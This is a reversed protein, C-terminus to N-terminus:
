ARPGSELIARAADLRARIREVDAPAPLAPASEDSLRDLEELWADLADRYARIAGAIPRANTAIIGGGMKADGRALRTMDRWGGAALGRAAPWREGHAAVSEVLAAAAILPLHSISAVALDHDIASMLVPRAGAARALAEVRDVHEAATGDPAVVVWPREMVLDATAAEFGTSERGAMPHGGVFPLGLDEARGVVLGKTSAVDTITAGAALADRLPGALEDLGALVAMPPGALIVLGAGELAERASAPAADLVRGELGARPGSGAPTWAAVRGTFGAARLALAISGGILGFGLFAVREPVRAIAAARAESRATTM